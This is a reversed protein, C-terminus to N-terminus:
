GPPSRGPEAALAVAVAEGAHQDALARRSRAAEIRREAVREAAAETTIAEDRAVELVGTLNGAIREVAVRARDPDYGGPVLEEAINIVGGANVVFDPAYLVGAEALRAADTAEALQNNAAGAVARCALEPITRANLGAGLACPSLVDCPVRHALEPGVIAVGFRKAVDTVRVADIDSVTVRAGAEVLHGVLAGGVKGVGVVVVHRGELREADDGLFALTARVAHFVGWATAPSPDGSGGSAGTVHPTVRKLVDMDAQTTGVDEATLYAGGLRNVARGYAELLETSRDTLPDGLLVAKGGGLDLGASANKYTMGKSLRLVDTLAEEDSAYRRFRTGGLAPGLTTDHLAIIARMGTARDYCHVVTEHGQEVLRAFTM